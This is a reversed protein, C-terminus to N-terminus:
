EETSTATSSATSKPQFEFEHSRRTTRARASPEVITAKVKVTVPKSTEPSVIIQVTAAGFTDLAGAPIWTEGQYNPQNMMNNMARHIGADLLWETQIMQHELKAHRRARLTGHVTTAMIAAAVTLCALTCVALVGPRSPPRLRRLNCNM